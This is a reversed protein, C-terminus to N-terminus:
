ISYYENVVRRVENQLTEETHNNVITYDILEPVLGAETPNLTDYNVSPHVIEVIVGGMEKVKFAENEMRINPTYIDGKGEAWKMFAEAHVEESVYDRLGQGLGVYFDRHTRTATLLQDKTREYYEDNIDTGMCRQMLNRILSSMEYKEYGIGALALGATNKGSRAPGAFGVVRRDKM